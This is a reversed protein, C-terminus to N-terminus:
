VVVVTTTSAPPPPPKRQGGAQRGAPPDGLIRRIHVYGVDSNPSPIHVLLGKQAYHELLPM